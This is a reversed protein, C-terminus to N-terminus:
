KRILSEGPRIQFLSFHLTLSQGDRITKHRQFSQMKDEGTKEAKVGDIRMIYM